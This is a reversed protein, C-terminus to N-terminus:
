RGDKSINHFRNVSVQPMSKYFSLEGSILCVDGVIAKKGYLSWEDSWMTSQFQHGANSLTLKYFRGPEGTKKNKFDVHKVEDIRGGMVVLKGKDAETLTRINVVGQSASFYEPYIQHYDPVIFDLSKNELDALKSKTLGQLEEPVDEKRLCYYMNVLDSRTKDPHLRDFCGAFIMQKVVKVNVKTKNVRNFFDEFSTFPRAKVIEACATDGVGKIVTFPMQIKGNNIDFATSSNNVDPLLIFQKAAEYYAAMHSEGAHTLCAMWWEIPYHVKMYQCFYGILAYSMSHSKNFGYGSFTEMLHWIEEARQPSIDTYFGEDRLQDLAMDFQADGLKELAEKYEPGGEWYKSANAVFRDKYPKIYKADKKGMAKRIDDAEALSFGGLIQSAKMVGEQYIMIGYSDKLTERLSEHPPDCPKEGRLRRIFEVHQANAMPGPRGVSTVLSLTDVSEVPIPKLISIAVDSNFQFVSETDGRKFADFTAADDLPIKEFDINIGKTAKLIKFCLDFYQLTKVSLIDYKIIGSFAADDANYELVWKDKLFRMPAFEELPDQTIAMGCPHVGAQRNYGVLKKTADLVDPFQAMLHQFDRMEAMSREFYEVESEEQEQKPLNSTIKNVIHFEVEPHLAKFADKVANKVRLTQMVGISKVRDEGYKDILYRRVAEQDSFDIDVDPLTGKQIRGESIFREFLLGYRIPDLHTIRLAYNLLSGAGSGRGPGVVIGNDRCWRCLDELVLFYDILDIKGNQTIAKLEYLLRERYIQNKLDVRGNAAVIKMVLELKSCGNNNLPHMLHPYNVIQPKFQLTIKNCTEALAISNKCLHDLWEPTIYDHYNKIQRQVDEMSMMWRPDRMAVGNYTNTIVIDQLVKQEAKEMYADMGLIPTISLVQCMHLLHRNQLQIQEVEGDYATHVFISAYLQDGFVRKLNQLRQTSDSQSKWHYPGELDGVLCVLDERRDAIDEISVRPGGDDRRISDHSLSILRCLNQYGRQSRAILTIFFAKSSDVDDFYRITTGLTFPVKSKRGTQYFDLVGSITQLDCIGVTHLSIEEARRFIEECSGIARGTSYTSRIQFAAYIMKKGVVM